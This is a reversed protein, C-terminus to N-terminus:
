NWHASIQASERQGALLAHRESDAQEKETDTFPQGLAILYENLGSNIKTQYPLGSGQVIRAMRQNRPHSLVRLGHLASALAHQQLQQWLHRGIGQGQFQDEVLIGVEATRAQADAEHVYYAVGVIREDHPSVTAVFGAGAAPNLRYLAATEDPTPPRQRLYRYYLSEPSLRGHMAHIPNVDDSRLPRVTILGPNSPAAQRMRHLNGQGWRWTTQVLNAAFQWCRDALQLMTKNREARAALAARELQLTRVRREHEEFLQQGQYPNFFM